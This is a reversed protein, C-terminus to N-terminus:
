AAQEKPSAIADGYIQMLQRFNQDPTYRAEYTERARAGLRRLEGPHSEAWRLCDALEGPSDPDFLLGTRGPEVLEALAGRRSAIVPLGCAFAEVVARGFTEPAVSPAVLYAHRRMAEHVDASPRRGLARVRPHAAVRAAEPGDGIMTVPAGARDIADLLLGAGKDNTLRGVFLGGARPGDPAPAVDVFHPKVVLREAPV